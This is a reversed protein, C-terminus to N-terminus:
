PRSPEIAVQWHRGTSSEAVRLLDDQFSVKYSGDPTTIEHGTASSQWKTPTAGLPMVAFLSLIRTSRASTQAQVFSERRQELKGGNRDTDYPARYVHEGRSVTIETEGLATVSGALSVDGAHVEFTGDANPEARDVTHWRLTLPRSDELKVDDVVAVIGPTLHVVTRVVREATPVFSTLDLQWYGGRSDDFETAIIDACAGRPGHMEEDDLTVLNHGVCSANYYKWRQSTFFDSPYGPPSGLDVILREGYGDICLQGADHHEHNQEIGAKGYVVCPTTNQDWSSRSVLIAGHEPFFKGLSLESTPAHSALSADYGLLSLPLDKFGSAAPGAAHEYFWQLTANRSAAAVTAFYSVEAPRDAHSDGFAMLRGPPLTTYANWIATDVFPWASLVNVKGQTSYRLADYYLVPLRTATSYGVSENFEGAKGYHQLYNHIRPQSFEVLREGDPHDEAFAMGVIGLGGVVCTNWNNHANVWWIDEEVSQWFPQIANKDLGAVITRRQDPSLHRHLWDYAIAIDRGLMGNRLDAPYARHSRDRWDPWQKPDFLSKMQRLAVDRFDENGTILCALANRLIRQGAAHCVYYDPNATAISSEARKGDVYTSPTIVPAERDQKTQSLLTQWMKAVPGPRAIAARFEDVSKLGDLKQETLFLHPRMTPEIAQALHVQMGLWISVVILGANRIADFMFRIVGQVETPATRCKSYAIFKRTLERCETTTESTKNQDRNM